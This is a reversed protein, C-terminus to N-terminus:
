EEVRETQGLDEEITPRDDALELFTILPSFPPHLSLSHCIPTPFSSKNSLIVALRPGLCGRAEHLTSFINPSPTSCDGSMIARHRTLKVEEAAPDLIRPDDIRGAERGNRSHSLAIFVSGLYHPFAAATSGM